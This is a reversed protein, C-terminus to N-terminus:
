LIISVVFVFCRSKYCQGQQCFCAHIDFFTTPLNLNQNREHGYNTLALCVGLACAYIAVALWLGYSFPAVYRDWTMDANNPQRIFVKISFHLNVKTIKFTYYWEKRLLKCKIVRCRIIFLTWTRLDHMTTSTPPLSRSSNLSNSASTVQYTKASTIQLLLFSARLNHHAKHHGRKFIKIYSTSNINLGSVYSLSFM